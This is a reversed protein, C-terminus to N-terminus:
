GSIASLYDLFRKSIKIHTYVDAYEKPSFTDVYNEPFNRHIGAAKALDVAKNYAIAAKEEKSYTGIIFNGNIHIVARYKILGKDQYQLVGHYRNIIILNSYRFDFEDGNAFQYDRGAVAYPKIGYRSLISYQMGYDNVFLHGQRKQIKHSAYYFLDDIDFKLELSPTLFYSFYGKRLYIPNRFYLQNDRFNILTVAKDPSLFQLHSTYNTLDVSTDNLIRAAELYTGHADEETSSSGLSIHKNKYTINSRYYITGNKQKATYVGPLMSGGIHNSKMMSIPIAYCKEPLFALKSPSYTSM